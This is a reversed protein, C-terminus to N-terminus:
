DSFLKFNVHFITGLKQYSFKFHLIVQPPALTTCHGLFWEIAGQSRFLPGTWGHLKEISIKFGRACFSVLILSIEIAGFIKMQQCLFASKQSLRSANHRLKVWPMNYTSVNFLIWNKLFYSKNSIIRLCDASPKIQYHTCTKSGDASLQSIAQFSGDVTPLHILCLPFQYTWDIHTQAAWFTGSHWDWNELYLM